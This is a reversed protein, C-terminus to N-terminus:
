SEGVSGDESLPLRRLGGRLLGTEVLGKLRGDCGKEFVLKM